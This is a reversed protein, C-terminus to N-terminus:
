LCSVHSEVKIKSNFMLWCVEEDWYFDNQFGGQLQAHAGVLTYEQTSNVGSPGPTYWMSGSPGAKNVCSGPGQARKLRRSSIRLLTKVPVCANIRRWARRIPYGAQTYMHMDAHRHPRSDMCIPHLGTHPRTCNPAQSLPCSTAVAHWLPGSLMARLGHPLKLHLNWPGSRPEPICSKM